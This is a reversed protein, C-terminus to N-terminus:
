DNLAENVIHEIEKWMEKNNDYTLKEAIEDISYWECIERDKEAIEGEFEGCDLALYLYVEVDEGSPTQYKNIYIPDDKLLKVARGTEEITERIACDKVTEGEEMHGKAFSYDNLSPRYILAVKKTEKNILVSGGKLTPM